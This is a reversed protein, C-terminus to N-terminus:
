DDGGGFIRDMVVNVDVQVPHLLHEVSSRVWEEFPIEKRICTSHLKKIIDSKLLDKIVLEKENNTM